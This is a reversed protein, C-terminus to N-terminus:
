LDIMYVKGGAFLGKLYLGPPFGTSTVYLRNGDELTRGFQASSPFDLGDAVVASSGNAQVQVVSGALYQMLYSPDDQDRGIALDDLFGLGDAVVHASGIADGSRTDEELRCFIGRISNNYYITSNRARIGNIGAGLDLPLGVMTDDKIAVESSNSRLDFRVVAGLKTDSALLMTNSLKTLGNLIGVNPVSAIIRSLEAKGSLKSTRLDFTWLSYSSRAVLQATSPLVFPNIEYVEPASWLVVLINGNSRVAMNEIWTGSPFQYLVSVSTASVQASLTCLLPSIYKWGLM